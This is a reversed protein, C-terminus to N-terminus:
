NGKFESQNPRHGRLPRTMINHKDHDPGLCRRRWRVRRWPRTTPAVVARLVALSFALLDLETARQARNKYYLLLRHPFSSMEAPVCNCLLIRYYYVLCLAQVICLTNNVRLFTSKRLDEEREVHRIM